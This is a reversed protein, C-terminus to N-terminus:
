DFDPEVVPRRAEDLQDQWAKKLDIRLWPLRFEDPHRGFRARFRRIKRHITARHWGGRELNSFGGALHWALWFGLLESHEIADEAIDILVDFPAEELNTDSGRAEYIEEYLEDPVADHFDRWRGRAIGLGELSEM